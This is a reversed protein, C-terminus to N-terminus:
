WNPPLSYSIHLPKFIPIVNTVHKSKVDAARKTIYDYVMGIRDMQDGEHGRAAGEPDWNEVAEGLWRPTREELQQRMVQRRSGQLKLFETREDFAFAGHPGRARPLEAMRQDVKERLVESRARLHRDVHQQLDPREGDIYSRMRRANSIEGAVGREDHVVLSEATLLSATPRGALGSGAGTLAASSGASASGGDSHAGSSSRGRRRRSAGAGGGGALGNANRLRAQKQLTFIKGTWERMEPKTAPTCVQAVFAEKERLEREKREEEEIRLRGVEMSELAAM